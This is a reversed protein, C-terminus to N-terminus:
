SHLAPMAATVWSFELSSVVNGKWCDVYQQHGSYTAIMPVVRGGHLSMQSHDQLSISGIIIIAHMKVFEEIKTIFFFMQSYDQSSISVIIIIAHM